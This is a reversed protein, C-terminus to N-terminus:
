SASVLPGSYLGGRREDPRGERPVPLDHNTPPSPAAAAVTRSDRASSGTASAANCYARLPHGTNGPAAHFPRRNTTPPDPAIAWRSRGTTGRVNAEASGWWTAFHHPTSSSHSGDANSTTPGANSATDTAPAAAAPSNNVRANCVAPPGTTNRGSLPAAGKMSSGPPERRRREVAGGAIRGRAAPEHIGAGGVSTPLPARTLQHHWGARDPHRGIAASANRAATAAACARRVAPRRQIPASPVVFPAVPRHRRSPLPDRHACVPIVTSSGSRAGSTPARRFSAQPGPCPVAVLDTRVRRPCSLNPASRFVASSSRDLLPPRRM